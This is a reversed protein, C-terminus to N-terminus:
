NDQYSISCKKMRYLVIDFVNKMNCTYLTDWYVAFINIIPSGILHIWGQSESVSFQMLLFYFYCIEGSSFYLKNLSNLIPSSLVLLYVILIM